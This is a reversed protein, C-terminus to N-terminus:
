SVLELDRIANRKNMYQTPGFKIEHQINSAAIGLGWSEDYKSRWWLYQDARCRKCMLGNHQVYKDYVVTSKNKEKSSLGVARVPIIQHTTPEDDERGQLM